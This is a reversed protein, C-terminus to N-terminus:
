QQNTHSKVLNEYQDILSQLQGIKTTNIEALQEYNIKAENYEKITKNIANASAEQAKKYSNQRELYKNYYESRQNDINQAEEKTLYVQAYSSDVELGLVNFDILSVLRNKIKEKIDEIYNDREEDTDFHKIIPYINFSLNICKTYESSKDLDIISEPIYIKSDTDLEFPELSTIPACIYITTDSHIATYYTSVGYGYPEFYTQYINYEEDNKNLSDIVTTGIVQVNNKTGGYMESLYLAYNKNMEVSEIM